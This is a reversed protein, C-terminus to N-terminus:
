RRCASSAPWENLREQQKMQSKLADYDAKLAELEQGINREMNM